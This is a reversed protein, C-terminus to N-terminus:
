GGVPTSEGLWAPMTIGAGQLQQALRANPERYRARLEDLFEDPVAERKTQGNLRYYAARLRQKLGHHRRLFREASDNIFLAVRQFARNRYVVTRNESDLAEVRYGDPEIQLWSALNRLVSDLDAVLDDFFVVHVGEGFIETWAPLFDAYCGGLFGFYRENAPDSFDAPTLRDGAALYEAITMEEPIRLRAKQYTFFSVFRSIPERFCLLIRAEGLADRMGEALPRAGYFYSPTAEIRVPEDRASSFYSAYESLPPTREGYRLPLFFRTEKVASPAVQPHSALAVYLGTTGAKNVGAIVTNALKPPPPV